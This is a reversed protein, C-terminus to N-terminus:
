RNLLERFELTERLNNLDRDKKAWELVNEDLLIAKKLYDISRRIDGKLAYLCALNYCADVSGSNIKQAKNFYKEAQEFDKEALAIVGLNNIANSHGPDIALVEQYFREALRLQGERHFNRARDYLRDLYERSVTPPSKNLKAQEAEAEIRISPTSDDKKLWANSALTGIVLLIPIILWALNKKKLLPNRRKAISLVSSYLLNRTDKNKQAKKLAENITSM